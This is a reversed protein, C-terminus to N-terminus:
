GDRGALRAAVAAYGAHRPRANLADELGIFTRQRASALPDIVVLTSYRGQAPPSGTWWREFAALGDPCLARLTETRLRLAHLV